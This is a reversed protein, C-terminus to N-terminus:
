GDSKRELGHWLVLATALHGAGFVGGVAWPSPDDGPVARLLLVAGALVYGLGVMGVAPPLHPRTAIVGLGFVMAWLGPLLAILEPVRAVGLTIAAGALICPAFQAVVRRTRRREFEDERLAYAHVAAATGLLGCIGAVAVWFWVFEVGGAAGPVHPQVAAALFGLLGVLVVARVRFGRYVESRTLQDHIAELRDLAERVHM